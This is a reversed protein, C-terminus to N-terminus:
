RQAEGEWVGKGELHTRSIFGFAKAFRGAPVTTKKNKFAAAEIRVTNGEEVESCDHENFTSLSDRSIQHQM